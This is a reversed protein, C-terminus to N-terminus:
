VFMKEHISVVRCLWYIRKVKEDTHAKVEIIITFQFGFAIINHLLVLTLYTAPALKAVIFIVATRVLIYRLDNEYLKIVVRNRRVLAIFYIVLDIRQASRQIFRSSYNSYKMVLHSITFGLCPRANHMKNLPNESKCVLPMLM